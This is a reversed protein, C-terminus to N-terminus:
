KLRISSPSGPLAPYAFPIGASEGRVNYARVDAFLWAEDGLGDCVYIVADGDKDVTYPTDFAQGNVTGRFGQVQVDAPYPNCVLSVASASSLAMLLISCLLLVIKM